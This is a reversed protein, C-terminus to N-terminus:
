AELRKWARLRASRARPNRATEIDSPRAVNRTLVVGLAKGRCVCLPLGPPCVCSRSWERFARKVLRDELSHYSIVVFVGGPRLAERIAPLAGELSDLEQNVAIRLSQFIRAKEKGNPERSFVSGMAAVLDESMAFPHDDRRLVVEAALRRARPEEGYARFIHLLEEEEAENLITAADRISAEGMRMDLPVGPRFTFGRDDADFQHSSVGLDLLAGALPEAAAADEVAHDFRSHILRYRGSFPSLTEKARELAQPDRDVGVLSCRACRDLLARAHGGGGLTGDMFVGENGDGLLFRLVEEVMVPEHYSSPNMDSESDVDDLAMSATGM